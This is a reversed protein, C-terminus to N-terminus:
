PVTSVQLSATYNAQNLICIQKLFPFKTEREREGGRKKRERERWLQNVLPV